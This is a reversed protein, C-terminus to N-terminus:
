PKNPLVINHRATTHGRVSMRMSRIRWPVSGGSQKDDSIEIKLTLRGDRMEALVAPDRLTSQWPISPESLSALLIPEESDGRMCSLRVDRRPAQIDWDIQIESPELPVAEIPLIFELQSESRNSSQSIWRGTSGLFIPSSNAGEANQLQVLPYPILVETGLSPTALEIPFTVLAAGRRELQTDWQPAELFLDTWGFLSRTQTQLRDTTELIQKYIATRRSHEKDVMADLTWRDGEAPFRGDFLIRGDALKEGLAASGAHYSLLPDKMPSPLGEPLTLLLGDANLEGHVLMSAHPLSTETTYRWAGTPWAANEMRWSQFDDTTITKIGSEISQDPLAYGGRDSQLVMRASQPTYVVASERISGGMPNNFQALQFVAVMSPIDRKQLWAVMVMPVSAVLALVPAVTGLWKMEGTSWRWAAFAFLSGCFLSLLAAVVSRSVVPNGVHQLPYDMNMLSVLPVARKTHVLDVLNKCWRRLEFESQFYPDESWQAYRPEIWAESGLATLILEGRGVPMVLAAPWGDITHTAFGGQHVLRKMAVPTALDMTRDSLSISQKPTEVVFRHLEVTELTTCQQDKELLPAIAQTDIDDLMIWIRGGQNLFSQLVSVTAADELANQEALILTDIFKWDVANLPFPMAEFSICDKSLEADVRSAVALEYTSFPRAKEWRWDLVPAPERGMALATVVSNKGPKWFRVSRTAPENGHLILVERGDILALLSIDVDLKDEPLPTPLRVQFEFLRVQHPLMEVRRRDEEGLNGTARGTLVGVASQDSTNRVSCRVVLLGDNSWFSQPAIGVSELKLGATAPTPPVAIPESSPPTQAILFVSLFAWLLQPVVYRSAIRHV